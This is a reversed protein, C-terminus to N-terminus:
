SEPPTPSPGFPSRPSPRGSLGLRRLEDLLRSAVLYHGFFNLHEDATGRPYFYEEPRREGALIAHQVSLTPVGLERLIAETAATAHGPELMAESAGRLRIGGPELTDVHPIVVALPTVSREHLSRAMAGLLARTVQWGARIAEPQHEEPVLSYLNSDFVLGLKQSHYEFLQRQWLRPREAALEPNRNAPSWRWQLQADLWGYLRSLRRLTHRGPSLRTEVLEGGRVEFYPRHVDLLSCTFAQRINNNCLDNHPFLQLVVVDPDLALGRDRLALWQQGTGWGGVALSVVDWAEDPGSTGDLGPGEGNLWGDLLGPFTRAYPYRGGLAFSDGLVVLRRRGESEPSLPRHRFGSPQVSDMRPWEPDITWGLAENYRWRPNTNPDVGAVRFVTEALVLALLGAAVALLPKLLARM